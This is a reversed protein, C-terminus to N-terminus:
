SLLLFLPWFDPFRRMRLKKYHFENSTEDFMELGSQLRLESARRCLLQVEAAARGMCSCAGQEGCTCMYKPGKNGCKCLLSCFFFFFALGHRALRRSFLRLCGPPNISNESAHRHLFRVYSANHKCLANFLHNM